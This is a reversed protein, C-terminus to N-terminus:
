LAVTVKAEPAQIEGKRTFIGSVLFCLFMIEKFHRGSWRSCGTIPTYINHWVLLHTAPPPPVM